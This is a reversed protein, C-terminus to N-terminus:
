APKQFIRRFLKADAEIAHGSGARSSKHKILYFSFPELSLSLIRIDVRKEVPCSTQSIKTPTWSGVKSHTHTLPINRKQSLLASTLHNSFSSGKQIFRKLLIVPPDQLSRMIDILFKHLESAWALLFGLAKTAM